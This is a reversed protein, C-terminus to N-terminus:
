EQKIHKHKRSHKPRYSEGNKKLIHVHHTLRDGGSVCNDVDFLFYLDNSTIVVGVKYGKSNIEALAEQHAMWYRPDHADINCGTATM